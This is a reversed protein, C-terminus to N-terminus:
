SLEGLMFFIYFYDFEFDVVSEDDEGIKGAVLCLVFCFVISWQLFPFCVCLPSLPYCFGQALLREVARNPDMDCEKLVAYIEQETCNVIEKVTQVVKKATPPIGRAAAAAVEGGDNRNKSESGM